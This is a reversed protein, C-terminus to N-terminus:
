RAKKSAHVYLRRLAVVLGFSLLLAVSNGAWGELDGMAYPAGEYGVDALTAPTFLVKAAARVKVGVGGEFVLLTWLLWYLCGLATLTIVIAGGVHVPDYFPENPDEKDSFVEEIWRRAGKM